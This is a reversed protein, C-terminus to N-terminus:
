TASALRRAFRRACWGIWAFFGGATLFMMGMRYRVEADLHDAAFTVVMLDGLLFTLAVLYMAIGVQKMDQVDDDVM